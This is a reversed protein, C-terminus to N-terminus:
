KELVFYIENAPFIYCLNEEYYEKMYGNMNFIIQYIKKIHNRIKFSSYFRFRVDIVIFNLNNYFTPVKRKLSSIKTMYYFSYLGFFHIHTYDSYFHPNSFHPVTGIKRGGPKLIRYIESMVFELNQVHELFHNSYVEDITNDPIFELGNNIDAVIDVTELDIKDITISHNFMRSPGCGLEVINKKDCSLNNLKNYKDIM